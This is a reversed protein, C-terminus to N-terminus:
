YWFDAILPLHDSMGGKYMTGLYTRRPQWEGQGDSELLFPFDGIRCSSPTTWLPSGNQLLNGNVIIHDLMYWTGRFKYTGRVRDSVRRRPSLDYLGTPTAPLQPQCVGLTRRLSYDSLEDNFDGMIVIFPSARRVAVSDVFGRLAKTAAIRRPRTARFGGARSPHHCVFVDLTDGTQIRGAVHLVDRLSTTNGTKEEVANPRLRDVELPLFTLPQFLLAVDIGRKDRSTTMVYGYGLASLHTRRTLDMMVSDNEVECLAVLDAPKEGGCAAVLRAMRGLKSWYRRGDWRRAGQPLFEYDEHGVDHLTDFLNEANMTVVRFRKPPVSQAWLSLAFCMCSLCLSFGLRNQLM